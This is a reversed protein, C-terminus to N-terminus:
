RLEAGRTGRGNDKAVARATVLLREVREQRALTSEQPAGVAARAVREAGAAAGLGSNERPGGGCKNYRAGAHVRDHDLADLQAESRGIVEVPLPDAAGLEAAM